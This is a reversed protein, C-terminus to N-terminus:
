NRVAMGVGFLAVVAAGLILLAFMSAIGLLFWCAADEAQGGGGAAIVWLAGLSGVALGVLGLAARWEQGPAGAILLLLFWWPSSFGLVKAEWDKM